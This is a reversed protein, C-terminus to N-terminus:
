MLIITGSFEFSKEPVINTKPSYMRYKAMWGSFKAQKEPVINANCCLAPLAAKQSLQTAQKSNDAPTYASLPAGEVTNSIGLNERWSM